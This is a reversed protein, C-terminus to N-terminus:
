PWRADCAADREDRHFRHLHPVLDAEEGVGEVDKALVADRDVQDRSGLAVDRDRDVRRLVDRVARGDLREGVIQALEALDRDDAVARGDREDALPDARDQVLERGHELHELLLLDMEHRLGRVIQVQREDHAGLVRITEHLVQVAQEDVLERAAHEALRPLAQRAAARRRLRHRLRPPDLLLRLQELDARM